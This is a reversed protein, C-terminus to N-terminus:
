SHNGLAGRQEHTSSSTSGKTKSNEKLIYPCDTPHKEKPKWCNYPYGM